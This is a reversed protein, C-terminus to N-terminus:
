QICLILIPLSQQKSFDTQKKSYKFARTLTGGGHQCYPSYPVTKQIIETRKLLKVVEGTTNDKCNQAVETVVFVNKTKNQVHM